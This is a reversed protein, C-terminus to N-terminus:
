HTNIQMSCKESVQSIEIEIGPNGDGVNKQPKGPLDGQKRSLTTIPNDFPFVTVPIDGTQDPLSETEPSNCAWVLGNGSHGTGLTWESSCMTQLCQWAGRYAHSTCREQICPLSDETIKDGSPTRLPSLAQSWSQLERSM